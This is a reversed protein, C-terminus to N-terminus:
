RKITFIPVSVSIIGYQQNGITLYSAEYIKGKKNQFGINAKYLPQNLAKNIGFGAGGLLRFVVEKQKPLKLEYNTSLAKIEGSVLGNVEINITDNKFTERFAKISIAKKYLEKQISDTAVDFEENMKNNIALLSDIQKQYFAENSKDNKLLYKYVYEKKSFTDHIVVHKINTKPKFTGNVEVTTPKNNCKQILAIVLLSIAILSLYLKWNKM